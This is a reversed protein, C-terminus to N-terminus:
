LVKKLALLVVISKPGFTTLQKFSKNNSFMVSENAMPLPKELLKM